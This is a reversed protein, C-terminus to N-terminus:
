SSLNGEMGQIHPVDAKVPSLEEEALEPAILGRAIAVQQAALWDSALQRHPFTEDALVKISGKRWYARYRGSKLKEISGFGKRSGSRRQSSM